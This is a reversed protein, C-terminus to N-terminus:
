KEFNILLNSSRYAKGGPVDNNDCRYLVFPNELNVNVGRSMTFAYTFGYDGLYSKVNGVAENSGYPYSFARAEIGFRKLIECSKAVQLKAGEEPLEGLPLHDHGHSGIAGEKGLSAVMEPSFYLDKFVSTEDVSCVEKLLYSFEKDVNHSTIVFNLLYKLFANKPGDYRYHKSGLAQIKQKQKENLQQYSISSKFHDLIFEPSLLSRVIHAKHVNLLKPEDFIKTNIFFIAPIGMEDLIPKALEFQERLGDDFTIIISNEPLKDNKAIHEEIDKPSIFKGLKSLIELQKRLETPTKGYIAPFPADFHERIYHFNVALLM